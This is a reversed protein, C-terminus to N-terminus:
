FIKRSPEGSQLTFLEDKTWDIGLFRRIEELRMARVESNRVRDYSGGSSSAAPSHSQRQIWQRSPSKELLSLGGVESQIGDLIGELEGATMDTSLEVMQPAPTSTREETHTHPFNDNATSDNGVGYLGHTYGGNDSNTSPPPSTKVVSLPPTKRAFPTSLSNVCFHRVAAVSVLATRESNPYAEPFLTENPLQLALSCGVAWQSLHYLVLSFDGLTLSFAAPNPTVQQPHFDYSTGPPTDTLQSWTCAPCYTTRTRVLHTSGKM